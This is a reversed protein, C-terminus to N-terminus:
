TLCVCSNNSIIESNNSIFESNNSNMDNILLKEQKM